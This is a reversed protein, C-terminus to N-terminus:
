SGLQFIEAGLQLLELIVESVHVHLVGSELVIDADHADLKVEHLLDHFQMIIVSSFSLILLYDRGCQSPNRFSLYIIFFVFMIARASHAAQKREDHAYEPTVSSVVVSESITEESIM